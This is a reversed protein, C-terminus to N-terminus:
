LDMLLLRVNKGNGVNGSSLNCDEGPSLVCAASWSIDVDIKELSLLLVLVM